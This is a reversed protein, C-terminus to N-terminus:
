DGSSSTLMPIVHHHRQLASSPGSEGTDFGGSRLPQVHISRQQPTVPTVPTRSADGTWSGPQQQQQQQQQQQWGQRTGIAPSFQPLQGKEMGRLLRHLEAKRLPKTLFASMGCEAAKTREESLANATLAIIPVSCPLARIHRTAEYGDLNPMSVAACVCLCASILRAAASRLCLRQQRQASHQVSRCDMFVAFFPVSASKVAEVAQLGDQAMVTRYHLSTLIRSLIKRNVENDDAVLITKLAPAPSSNSSSSSSSVSPSASSKSSPSSVTSASASQFGTFEDAEKERDATAAATGAAAVALPLRPKYVVSKLSSSPSLPLATVAAAADSSRPSVLGDTRLRSPAIPSTPQSSGSVAGDEVSEQSSQRSLSDASDQQPQSADSHHPLTHSDSQQRHAKAYETENGLPLPLVFVFESGKGLESRVRIEGKLNSIIERCISLGLGTGGKERVISLKAQTYPAFLQPLAHSSIGIGTDAVTFQVYAHQRTRLRRTQLAPSSFASSPSLSSGSSLVPSVPVVTATSAAPSDSNDDGREELLYAEEEADHIFRRDDDGDGDKGQEAEADPQSFNMVISHGSRSRVFTLPRLSRSLSLPSGYAAAAAPPALASSASSPRSPLLGLSDADLLVAGKEGRRDFTAPAHQLMRVSLTVSGAQTFKISNSLLNLLLQHLRTPDSIFYRPTGPEYHFLLAIDKSRAQHKVNKLLSSCVDLLDVPIREFSMRGSQLRSIDLVDNVISTMLQASDLVSRAYEAQEATLRTEQLFDTNATIIHLPNRIEHCLFAMFESKNLNAQVAQQNAADLEVLRRQMQRELDLSYVIFRLGEPILYFLVFVTLISVIATATKMGALVLPSTVREDMVLVMILHSSGCLLIFAAFLVIVLRYRPPINIPNCALFYILQAPIM